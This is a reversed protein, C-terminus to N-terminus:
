SAEQCNKGLDSNEHPAPPTLYQIKIKDRKNKIEVIVRRGRLYQGRGRM